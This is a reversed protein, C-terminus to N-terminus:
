GLFGFNCVPGPLGLWLPWFYLQYHPLMWFRVTEAMKGTEMPKKPKCFLLHPWFDASVVGLKGCCVGWFAASVLYATPLRRKSGLLRRKSPPYRRSWLMYVVCYWVRSIRMSVHLVGSSMSFSVNTTVGVTIGERYRRGM